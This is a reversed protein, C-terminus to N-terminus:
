IKYTKRTSKLRNIRTCQLMFYILNLEKIMRDYGSIVKLMIYFAFFNMKTYIAKFNCFIATRFANKLHLTAFQSYLFFFCKTHFLVVVLNLHCRCFSVIKFFIKLFINLNIKQVSFQHYFWMVAHIMYINYWHSYLKLARNVVYM